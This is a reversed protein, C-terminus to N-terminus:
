AAELTDRFKGIDGCALAKAPQPGVVQYGIEATVIKIQKATLPHTYM